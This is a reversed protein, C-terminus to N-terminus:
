LTGVNNDHGYVLFTCFIYIRRLQFDLFSYTLTNPVNNNAQKASIRTLEMCERKKEM